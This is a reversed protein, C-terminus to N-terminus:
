GAIGSMEPPPRWREAPRCAGDRTPSLVARGPGATAALLETRMRASRGTPM